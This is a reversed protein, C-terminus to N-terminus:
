FKEPMPPAKSNLDFAVPHLLLNKTDSVAPFFGEVSFDQSDLSVVLASPGRIGSQLDIM